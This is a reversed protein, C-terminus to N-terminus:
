AQQKVMTAIARPLNMAQLTPITLQAIDVEADSLHQKVKAVSAAMFAERNGTNRKLFAAKNFKTVLVPTGGGLKPLLMQEPSAAAAAGDGLQTRVELMLDRLQKMEAKLEGNEKRISKNDVLLRDVLVVLNKDQVMPGMAIVVDAYSFSTTLSSHLLVEMLWVNLNGNRNYLQHSYNGYIKRWTHTKNTFTKLLKAPWLSDFFKISKGLYTNSLAKRDTSHGIAERIEAVLNKIYQPTVGHESFLVPKTVKADPILELLDQDKSDVLSELINSKEDDGKAEEIAKALKKKFARKAKSGEKAVGLIRIFLQPDFNKELTSLEYKSACLVEIWRSGCSIQVLAIAAELWNDSTKPGNAMKVLKKVIELMTYSDIKVTTALRVMQKDQRSKQLADHGLEHQVFIKDALLGVGMASRYWDHKTLTELLVSRTTQEIGFDEPRYLVAKILKDLASFVAEYNEQTVLNSELLHIICAIDSNCKKTLKGYVIEELGLISWITSRRTGGKARNSDREKVFVRVNTPRTLISFFVDLDVNTELGSIDLPTRDFIPRQGVSKQKKEAFNGKKSIPKFDSAVLKRKM